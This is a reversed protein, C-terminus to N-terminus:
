YKYLLYRCQQIQKTARSRATKFKLMCVWGVVIGMTCLVGFILKIIKRRQSIPKPPNSLPHENQDRRLPTIEASRHSM